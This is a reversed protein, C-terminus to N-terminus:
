ISNFLKHLFDYLIVFIVSLSLANTYVLLFDVQFDLRVVVSLDMLKIRVHEVTNVRIVLVNTSTLRAFLV